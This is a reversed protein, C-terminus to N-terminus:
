AAEPVIERLLSQMDDPRGIDVTAVDFTTSSGSVRWHRCVGAKPLEEHWPYLLVLHRARYARAYALMQYIDSEAVGLNPKGPDLRKWKTDVVTDDDVVIDPRLGFIGPPGEELAHQDYRQLRVSRPVLAAQMCRGVFAEFLDNMAFLLAFGEESGAMTGQWHGALFLQALAHLRHFAVNTRDLRVPERLPDASEGVSEFRAALEALRRGNASTVTLGALRRVAASLVRNLPTDVSLEDYACALHDPRTAQRLLQRRIDLKGRLVALDEERGRYRHPLGRRVAVLLREAFLRVLVELLNERQTAMSSTERDAMPLGMAVALMRTLSRRVGGDQEGDIKPLIELSAGPVSLVGVVQGARLGPRATRSLVPQPIRLRRTEREALAHLRQAAAHPVGNAGIPLEQWERVTFASVSLDSPVPTRGPGAWCAM